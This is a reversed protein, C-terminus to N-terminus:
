ASNYIFLPQNKDAEKDKKNYKNINFHRLMKAKLPIETPKLADQARTEATTTAKMIDAMMMAKTTMDTMEAMTVMEATELITMKKMFQSKLHNPFTLPNLRPSMTPNKMLSKEQLLLHKKLNPLILNRNSVPYIRNHKLSLNPSLNHSNLSLNPSLNHSNPNHRNNRNPFMRTARNMVNNLNHHNLNRNPLMRTVPNMVNNLNHRNNRNPFTLNVRIMANNPNHRNLNRNPFMPNVRIMVLNQNKRNLYMRNRIMVNNLDKRIRNRNRYM